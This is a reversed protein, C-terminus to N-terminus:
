WIVHKIWLSGDLEWPLEILYNTLFFINGSAMEAKNVSSISTWVCQILRQACLEPLLQGCSCLVSHHVPVQLKFCWSSDLKPRNQLHRSFVSSTMIFNLFHSLLVCSWGQYDFLVCFCHSCNLFRSWHCSKFFFFSIIIIIEELDCTRWDHVFSLLDWCIERARTHTHTYVHARPSFLNLNRLPEPLPESIIGIGGSNSEM